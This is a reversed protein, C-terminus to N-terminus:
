NQWEGLKQKAISAEESLPFRDAVRQLLLKANGRDGLAEFSLGQKLLASAVKPHDAFTQIVDEFKLIALDFNNEAYHTEAVWYAANVALPHTPYRKLFIIMVERGGAFDKVDRIMILARNYLDEPGEPPTPLNTTAPADTEPPTEPLVAVDPAAVGTDEGVTTSAVDLRQALDALQLSLDERVLMVEQRLDENARHQDEFRGVFAQMDVQLGNLDAQAEAQSKSLFDMQAKLNEPQNEEILKLSRELESLRHRMELLDRQTRLQQETNVCGGLILLGVSLALCLLRWKM